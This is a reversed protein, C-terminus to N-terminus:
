KKPWFKNDNKDSPFFAPVIPNYIPIISFWWSYWVDHIRKITAAIMIYTMLILPIITALFWISGGSKQVSPLLALSVISTIVQVLLFQILIRWWKKRGIRWKTSFYREEPSDSYSNKLLHNNNKMTDHSDIKEIQTWNDM